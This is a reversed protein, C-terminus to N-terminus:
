LGLRWRRDELLRECTERLSAHERVLSPVDSVRIEQATRRKFRFRERKWAILGGNTSEHRPAPVLLAAFALREDLASVRMKSVALKRAYDAPAISMKSINLKRVFECAGIMSQYFYDAEGRMKSPDRYLEVFRLESAFHRPRARLVVMVLLPFFDDAGAPTDSSSLRDKLVDSVLKCCNMVRVMKNRPSKHSRLAVLENEALRLTEREWIDASPIELHEFDVFAHLAASERFTRDPCRMEEVVSAAKTNDDADDNECESGLVVREEEEEVEDDDYSEVQGFVDAFIKSVVLKETGEIIAARVFQRYERNWSSGSKERSEVHAYLRRQFHKAFSRVRSAVIEVQSRNADDGADTTVKASKEEKGRKKKTNSSKSALPAGATEVRTTEGDGQKREDLKPRKAVGLDVQTAEDHQHIVDFRRRLKAHRIDALLSDVFGRASELISAASPHRVVRLFWAEDAPAETRQKTMRHGVVGSIEETSDSKELDCEKEFFTRFEIRINRLRERSSRISESTSRIGKKQLHEVSATSLARNSENDHHSRRHLGKNRGRSRLCAALIELPAESAVPVREVKRFDVRKRTAVVPPVTQWGADIWANREARAEELLAMKRSNYRNDESSRRRRLSRRWVDKEVDVVPAPAKTTPDLTARRLAPAKDGHFRLIEVSLPRDQFKMCLKLIRKDASLEEDGDEDDRSRESDQGGTGRTCSRPFLRTPVGNVRHIYDGSRIGVTRATDKVESVKGNKFKIGLIQKSFQVIKHEHPYQGGGFDCRNSGDFKLSRSALTSLANRQMSHAVHVEMAPGLPSSSVSSIKREM